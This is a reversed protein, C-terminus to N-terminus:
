KKVEIRCNLPHALGSATKFYVEAYGIKLKSRLKIPLFNDDDGIWVEASTKTSEFAEEDMIDIKFYRTNFKANGHEIIAQYQYIFQIKVLDRGIAVLLPFTDGQKLKTRDVGRMYHAVSLMDTVVGATTLTTDIKMRAPTYRVSHIMTKEAGYSFTLEDILYYNGEDTRKSSYILMNDSNYYGTLTDRMKFFGDFFKTTKFYLDYRSAAGALVHEADYTFSAEGARTMILGWKFYLDYTAKEGHLMSFSEMGTRQASVQLWCTFFLFLYIRLEYKM